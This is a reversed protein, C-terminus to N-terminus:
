QFDFLLVAFGQKSLMRARGLMALLNGRVGHLLLVAGRDPCGAIFWGSLRSGSTSVFSVEEAALDAPPHGIVAPAPTCAISGAILSAALMLCACLAAFLVTLRLARKM